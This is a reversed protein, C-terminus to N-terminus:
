GFLQRIGATLQHFRVHGTIFMPHVRERCIECVFM